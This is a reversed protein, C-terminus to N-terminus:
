PIVELPEPDARLPIAKMALRMMVDVRNGGSVTGGVSISVIFCWCRGMILIIGAIILRFTYQQSNLDLLM